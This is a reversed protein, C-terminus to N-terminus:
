VNLNIQKMMNTADTPKKFYAYVGNNKTKEILAKVKENKIRVMSKLDKDRENEQKNIYSIISINNNGNNEIIPMHDSKSLSYDIITHSNTTSKNSRKEKLKAFEEIRNKRFIELNEERIKQQNQLSINNNNIDGYKRDKAKILHNNNFLSFNDEFFKEAIDKKKEGQLDQLSKASKLKGLKIKIYNKNPNEREPIPSLPGKIQLNPM